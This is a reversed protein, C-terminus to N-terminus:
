VVTPQDNVLFTQGSVYQPSAMYLSRQTETAKKLEEFVHEQPLLYSICLDELCDADTGGNFAIYGALGGATKRLDISHILSLALEERHHRRGYLRETWGDRTIRIRDELLELTGNVGKASKLVRDEM